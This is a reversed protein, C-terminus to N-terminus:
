GQSTSVSEKDAVSQLGFFAKIGILSNVEGWFSGAPLIAVELQTEGYSSQFKKTLMVKGKYIFVVKKM